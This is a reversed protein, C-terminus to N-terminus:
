PIIILLFFTVVLVALSFCILALMANVYYQKYKIKKANRNVIRSWTAAYKTIVYAQSKKQHKKLMRHPNFVHYALPRQLYIGLGIAGVLSALSLIFLTSTLVFALNSITTQKLIFYGVGIIIPILTAAISM